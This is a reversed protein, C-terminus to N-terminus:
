RTAVVTLRAHGTDGAHWTVTGRDVSTATPLTVRFTLQDGPALEAWSPFVTVPGSFGETSATVRLIRDSTNTLTREATDRGNGLLVHAQNLDARDRNLWRRYHHQPVLFSVPAIPGTTARGAGADAVGAGNVPRTTTMLSSRVEGPTASPRALLRAALGSVHAASVSTGTALNWGGPVAAMVESGPAVLDPKLLSLRPDGGSSFGAVRPTREVTGRAVLDIRPDTRAAAWRSLRQAASARLHVTPVAHLDANTSGGDTNALVMGVGDAREVAQSKAVRATVGRECVVVAGAVARADLSGDRCVRAARTTAGPAAADAGRVLRADTVSRTSAMPGRLELTGAAVTGARVDGTTAGVTIVWPSPHAAYARDGGNGAAAVVVTGAETAGLLAREVTDIESPGAVALNLVDVRDATARDIASVLDATACGDEDPDPASWCAKYAAVRARPATGAHQGTDDGNVRMPVGASGAAVSAMQTGHGDTDRPSLSDASRVRDPGFGQVFYQAGVIKEGCASSKWASDGAAVTCGGRFRPAKGLPAVDSFARNAPDIGSDVFGIVTGSGGRAARTSAHARERTSAVTALPRVQNKEVVAVDPHSSLTRAQDADLAVAFGNLADTWRYVPAPAKAMALLRDQDDLMQQRVDHASQDGRHGSLGPSRLAVLHLAPEDDSAPEEASAPSLMTALLAITAMVLGAWGTTRRVGARHARWTAGRDM